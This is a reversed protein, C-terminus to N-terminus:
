QSMLLNIWQDKLEQILSICAWSHKPAKMARLNLVTTPNSKNKLSNSQKPQLCHVSDLTCPVLEPVHPLCVFARTQKRGHPCGGQMEAYAMRDNSLGHHAYSLMAGRESSRSKRIEGRGYHTRATHTGEKAM